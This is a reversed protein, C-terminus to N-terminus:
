KTKGIVALYIATEQIGDVGIIQNVEDDYFAGISCCGLNLATAALSLNQCVHGADLYIYRYAREKYKWQSKGPMATWIFVAASESVMTQDLCASTLEGSLNKDSIQEIRHKFLNLYYIGTPVTNVRNAMIYTEFPYLAGASPATRLLYDGHKRTVGQAAFVLSFFLDADLAASTFDRESCRNQLTKWLDAPPPSIKDPLPILALPNEYQKFPAATEYEIPPQRFLSQRSYKTELQYRAGIQKEIEKM